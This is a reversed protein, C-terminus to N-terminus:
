FCFCCLWVGFPNASLSAGFAASCYSSLHVRHQLSGAVQIGSVGM